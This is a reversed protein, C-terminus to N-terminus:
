IRWQMTTGGICLEQLAGSRDQRTCVDSRASSGELDRASLFEGNETIETGLRTPLMDSGIGHNAFVWICIDYYTNEHLHTIDYTTALRDLRKTYQVVTSGIAQYRITFGDVLPYLHKDLEWRIRLSDKTSSAIEVYNLIESSNWPKDM